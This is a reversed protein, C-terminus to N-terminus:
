KNRVWSVSFNMIKAMNIATERNTCAYIHDIDEVQYARSGDTMTTEIVQFEEALQPDYSKQMKGGHALSIKQNQNTKSSVTISTIKSKAEALKQDHLVVLKRIQQIGRKTM